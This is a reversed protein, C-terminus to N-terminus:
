SSKINTIVCASRIHVCERLCRAYRDPLASRGTSCSNYTSSCKYKLMCIIRVHMYTYDYTDVSKQITLGHIVAAMVYHMQYCDIM